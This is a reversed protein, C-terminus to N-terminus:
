VLMREYVEISKEEDKVRLEKVVHTYVRLTTEIDSHGLRESVYYISVGKYLLVSAHTHRLGHLSIEDIKLEALIRKLLSNSAGNSIVKYKSSPSYFVLKTINDPTAEFLNKFTIMTQEDVKIERNSQENKTPGFGDHMKNTYGWTKNISITNNKFDFDKRTLGVIEAFRMGTTLALLLLYYNLSVDLNRYLHQLLKKSDAYSLHKDQSRKADLGSISVNRTFDVRIIGEDVAERVCSRIHSNLKRVTSKARTKAYENIFKQYERKSIEQLPKDGFHEDITDYTNLLRERTNKGVHSKYVKIWEYFYENFPESKLHPVVGRALEAEVEAAATQAEKKTRFGGKRIPRSKGNVMRSVTYQWTKGRKTFSAM